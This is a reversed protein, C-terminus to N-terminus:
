VRIDMIKLIWASCATLGILVITSVVLGIGQYMPQMYDPSSMNLFALFGVPAIMIIKSEFKKQAVMVAIEQKVDMKEGILNSTRRVVEVLDGGTRKCAAFVEAFNTIDEIGARQSLDLLAQEIPEGNELRSRIIRFERILDTNVDPYLLQLDQIVEHFSNEVSRGAALSSSISYLAQKFQLSLETRRRLLLAERRFKPYLAGAAFCLVAAVVSHYFLYGVISFVLGAGAFAILWQMQSLKYETYISLGDPMHGGFEPSSAVRDDNEGKLRRRRMREQVVFFAGTAAAAIFALVLINM